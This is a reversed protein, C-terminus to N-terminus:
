GGGPNTFLLMTAKDLAAPDDSYKVMQQKAYQMSITGAKLEQNYLHQFAQMEIAKLQSLSHHQASAIASISKGLKLQGQIQQPSLGLAVAVEKQARLTFDSTKPAPTDPLQKSFPPTPLPKVGAGLHLQPVVWLALGGGLLFFLLATIGVVAWGGRRQRRRRPLDSIKEWQSSMTGVYEYPPYAPLAHAGVSYAGAYEADELTEAHWTARLEAISLPERDVNGNSRSLDGGGRRPSEREWLQGRQGVASQPADHQQLALRAAERVSEDADHLVAQLAERPAHQGQRGLALAATERVHWDPDDLAEVLRQLSGRAYGKGLAHVAAARVSRDADGLADLLLESSTAPDLTGLARVAAVRLQWDDSALGTRVDDLATKAPPQEPSLGLRHLVGPLLSVPPQIHELEAGAHDDHLGFPRENEDYDM